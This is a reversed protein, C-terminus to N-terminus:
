NLGDELEETNSLFSDFLPHNVHRFNPNSKPNQSVVTWDMSWGDRQNPSFDHRVRTFHGHAKTIIASFSPVM